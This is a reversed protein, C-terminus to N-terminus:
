KQKQEYQVFKKKDHKGARKEQEKERKEKKKVMIDSYVTKLIRCLKDKKRIKGFSYSFRVRVFLNAM